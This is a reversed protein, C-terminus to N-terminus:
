PQRFTALVNSLLQRQVERGEFDTQSEIRIITEIADAASKRFDERESMLRTRLAEQEPPTIDLSDVGDIAKNIKALNVSFCNGVALFYESFNPQNRRHAILGLYYPAERNQTGEPVVKLM